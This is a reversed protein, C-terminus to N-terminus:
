LATLGAMPVAAGDEFSVGDPLKASHSVPVNAYEAFAGRGIEAIIRDGIAYETVDAGVADVVGALDAGLVRPEKVRWGERTRVLLPDGRYQHWDFANLAAAIVKVRVEHPEPTPAPVEAVHLQEPGAYASFTIAKM